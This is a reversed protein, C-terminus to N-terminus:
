TPPKQLKQAAQILEPDHDHTYSATTKVDSHGVMKQVTTLAAGTHTMMTTFTHRCCHPEMRRKEHRQIGVADLTKYYDAYFNNDRDRYLHKRGKIKSQEVAYEVLPRLFDPFAICRGKGAASKIGGVMYLEDIHVDELAVSHLEGPRMGTYCMILIYAVFGSQEREWLAWLAALEQATFADKHSENQGPLTVFKAMNVTVWGQAQAYQYIKSAVVKAEKKPDARGPIADIVDQWDQTILASIEARHVREMRRFATTYHRAKGESLGDLWTPSMADWIDRVTQGREPLRKEKKLLEKAELAAKKSPLGYKRRYRRKGAYDWYTIQAIWKKTKEDQWVSGEGNGRTRRKKEIPAFPKKRGCYPCFLSDDPIDRTCKKCELFDGEKKLFCM